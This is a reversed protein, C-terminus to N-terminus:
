LILCMSSRQCLKNRMYATDSPEIDMGLLSRGLISPQYQDGHIVEKIEFMAFDPPFLKREFHDLQVQAYIRNVPVDPLFNTYIAERPIDGDHVSSNAHPTRWDWLVVDGVDYIIDELAEKIEDIHEL